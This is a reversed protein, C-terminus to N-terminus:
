EDEGDAAHEECVPMNGCVGVSPQGCRRPCDEWWCVADDAKPYQQTGHELCAECPPSAWEGDVTWGLGEMALYAIPNPYNVCPDYACDFMWGHGRMEGIEFWNVHLGSDDGPPIPTPPTSESGLNRPHGGGDKRAVTM